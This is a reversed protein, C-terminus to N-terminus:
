TRSSCTASCMAAEMDQLIMNRLLTSKGTGTKGIVYVHQRRDTRRLGFPAEGGWVNRMGLHVIDDEMALCARSWRSVALWAAWRLPKERLSLERPNVLQFSFCAPLMRRPERAALTVLVQTSLRAMVARSM